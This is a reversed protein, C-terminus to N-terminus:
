HFHVGLPDTQTDVDIPVDSHDAANVQSDKVEFTKQLGFIQTLTYKDEVKSKVKTIHM